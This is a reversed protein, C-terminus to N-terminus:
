CVETELYAEDDEALAEDIADVFKGKNGLSRAVAVLKQIDEVSQEPEPRQPAASPNALEAPLNKLFWPHQKIGELNIRQQPNAVFIRSLLDVCEPSIRLQSPIKYQVQLIRQPAPCPLLRPAAM